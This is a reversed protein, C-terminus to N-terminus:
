WRDDMNGSTRDPAMRKGDEAVVRVHHGASLCAISHQCGRAYLFRCVQGCDGMQRCDFPAHREQMEKVAEPSRMFDLFDLDLRIVVERSHQILIGQLCETVAAEARVVRCQPSRSLIRVDKELGLFRCVSIVISNRFNDFAIHFFHVFQSAPVVAQKIIM